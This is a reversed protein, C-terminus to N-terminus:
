KKLNRNWYSQTQMEKLRSVTRDFAFTEEEASFVNAKAAEDGANVALDDMLM